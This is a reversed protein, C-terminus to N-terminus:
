LLICNEKRRHSKKTAPPPNRPQTNNVTRPKYAGGTEKSFRTNTKNTARNVQRVLDFFIKFFCCSKM